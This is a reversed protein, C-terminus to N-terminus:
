RSVRGMRRTTPRRVTTTRRSRWGAAGVVATSSPHAVGAVLPVDTGAPSGQGDCSNTAYVTFDVTGTPVGGAATGSVTASDHVTSGIPAHLVVAHAANHIDTATSSGLKDASLPECPGDSTDYTASGDYHAKFALGASGVVATSSPHAVGAVLPVDTGAPSGQGDCSNTAYVTFDVTGTPVGGAATGSVTASDHVTSGIPAHLVVAHAANHIDTATSSGLKDASLPECPGDSTDYTASGDYHAKFALGGSGVVATSSPHAVGAVLPVDTGAPSGQGDCSNTAYVTFDVTGTPVGGAATGSVTASDHVTSGIPAHLVVAHAANHIDTAVTPTQMQFINTFTCSATIPAGTTAVVPGASAQRATLQAASASCLTGTVSQLTYATPGTEQVTYTGSPLDLFEGSGCVQPASNPNPDVTFCFDSPVATGGSGAAILKQVDIKTLTIIKNVPIPVTKDPSVLRMALSAGPYSGAGNGFGVQDSTGPVIDGPAALHGGWLLYSRVASTPTVTVQVLREGIGCIGGPSLNDEYATVSANVTAFPGVAQVVTAGVGGAQTDTLPVTANYEDLSLFGYKTVSRFERCVNVLYSTGVTLGSLDLRFPIAQKEAYRVTNGATWSDSVTDWGALGVSSPLAAGSLASDGTDAVALAAVAALAVVAALAAFRVRAQRWGDRRAPQQQKAGIERFLTRESDEDPREAQKRNGMGWM